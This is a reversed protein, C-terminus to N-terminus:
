FRWFSSAARLMSCKSFHGNKVGYDGELTLKTLQKKFPEFDLAIHAQLNVMQKLFDALGTWTEMDISNKQLQQLVAKAKSEDPVEADVTAKSRPLKSFMAWVADECEEVKKQSTPFAMQPDDLLDTVIATDRESNNYLQPSGSELTESSFYPQLSSGLKGSEQEVMSVEGANVYCCLHKGGKGFAAKQSFCVGGQTISHVLSQVTVAHTGQCWDPTPEDSQAISLLIKGPSPGLCTLMSQLQIRLPELLQIRKEWGQKRTMHGKIVANNRKIKGELEEIQSELASEKPDASARELVSEKLELKAEHSEATAVLKSLDVTCNAAKTLLHGSLDQSDLSTLGSISEGLRRALKMIVFHGPSRIAQELPEDSYVNKGTQPDQVAESLTEVAAIVVAWQEDSCLPQLEPQLIALLHAQRANTISTELSAISKRAQFRKAKNKKSLELLEKEKKTVEPEFKKIEANKLKAEARIAANMKMKFDTVGRLAKQVAALSAQLAGAPTPLQVVRWLQGRLRCIDGHEFQGQAAERQQKALMALIYSASGERCEHKLQVRQEATFYDLTSGLAKPQGVAGDPYLFKVFEDYDVEGDKNTDFMGMLLHLKDAGVSPDVKSAAETFEDFTIKGTHHYDIQDFLEKLREKASNSETKLVRKFVFSRVRQEDDASHGRKKVVSSVAGM